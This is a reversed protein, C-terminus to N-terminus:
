ETELIRRYLGPKWTKEFQAPIKEKALSLFAEREPESILLTVEELFRRHELPLAAPDVQAGISSVPGAVLALALAVTLRLGPASLSM